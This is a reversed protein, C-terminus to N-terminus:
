TNLRWLSFNLLAAFSVWLWYPAFLLGALTTVRWFAILTGSIALWLLVIEGFALGPRKLGFFIFSWLGNLVLQVVFLSLASTAGVFGRERWVLWAAMGIMLYLITWVPGFIWDPPTFGPKVLQDYWAGPTFQSGFFATGFCLGLWFM